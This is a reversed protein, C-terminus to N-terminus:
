YNASHTIHLPCSKSLATIKYAYQTSAKEM